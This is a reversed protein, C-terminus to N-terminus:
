PTVEEKVLARYPALPSEIDKWLAAHHTSTEANAAKALGLLAAVDEDPADPKNPDKWPDKPDKPDEHETETAPQTTEERAVPSGQPERTMVLVGLVGAAVTAALGVAIRRTRRVKIRHQAGATMRSAFGMGPDAERHMVGLEAPLAALRRCSPCSAAHEAVDGLPEGLAVREAVTDCPSKM